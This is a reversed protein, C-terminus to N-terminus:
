CPAYRGYGGRLFLLPSRDGVAALARVYGTVFLHDGAGSVSRLDCEVSAVVGELVPAGTGGPRWAVGAFRDVGRRSFARCLQEQDEALVNACFARAREIRPWTTSSRDPLFGVLPPRLSVSTFSGVSMGVPEGAEVATVVVVGTAHHGLVRRFTADPDEGAAVAPASGGCAPATARM